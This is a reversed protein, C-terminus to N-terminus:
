GAVAGDFEAVLVMFTGADHGVKEVAERQSIIWDPHLTADLAKGLIHEFSRFVPALALLSVRVIDETDNSRFPRITVAV